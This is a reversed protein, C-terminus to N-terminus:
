RRAPKLQRNLYGKSFIILIATRSKPVWQKKTSKTKLRWTFSNSHLILSLCVDRWAQLHRWAGAFINGIKLFVNLTRLKRQTCENQISERGPLNIVLVSLLLPLVKIVAQKLLPFSLRLLILDLQVTLDNLWPLFQALIQILHTLYSIM